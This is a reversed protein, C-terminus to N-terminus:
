RCASRPQRAVESSPRSSSRAKPGSRGRQKLLSTARAHRGAAAARTMKAANATIPATAAAPATDAAVPPQVIAEARGAMTWPMGVFITNVAVFM